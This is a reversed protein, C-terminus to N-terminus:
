VNSVLGSFIDRIHSLPVHDLSFVTIYELAVQLVEWGYELAYGAVSNERNM